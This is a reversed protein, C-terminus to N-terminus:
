LFRSGRDELEISFTSANPEGSINTIILTCPMVTWLVSFERPVVMIIEFIANRRMIGVENNMLIRDNLVIYASGKFADNLL